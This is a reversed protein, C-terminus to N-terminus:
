PRRCGIPREYLYEIRSFAEDLPEIAVNMTHGNAHILSNEDRVIAVHGRWFVLDGRRLNEYTKGPDIEDGLTAAQM